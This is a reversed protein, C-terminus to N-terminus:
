PAVSKASVSDASPSHQEPAPTPALYVTSTFFPQLLLGKAQYLSKCVRHCASIWWVGQWGLHVPFEPIIGDGRKKPLLDLVNNKWPSPHVIIIQIRVVYDNGTTTEAAIRLKGTAYRPSLIPRPLLRRANRQLLQM